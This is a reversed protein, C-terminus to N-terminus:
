WLVILGTVMTNIMALPFLVKWGFQMLQDYRFRPLTARLWIYVFVFAAVKIMMWLFPPLLPGNWGGFFLTSAVAGVAIMHAYEGVFFTSFRM